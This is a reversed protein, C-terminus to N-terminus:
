PRGTAAARRRLWFSAAGAALVLVVASPAWHRLLGATSAESGPYTEPLSDLDSDCILPADSGPGYVCVTAAARLTGPAVGDAAARREGLTATATLVRKGHPPLQTRWEARERDVSAAGRATASETTAPMRQVVRLARVARDGANRLTVDYELRDGAAARDVGDTISVSLAPPGDADRAAAYPAGALGPATTAALVLSALLASRVATGSGARMRDM